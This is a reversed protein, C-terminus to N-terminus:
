AAAGFLDGQAPMRLVAAQEPDDNSVRKAM